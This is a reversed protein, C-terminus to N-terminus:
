TQEYIDGNFLNQKLEAVLYAVLPKFCGGNGRIWWFTNTSDNWFTAGSIAMQLLRSISHTLRRGMVAALLELIPISMSTTTPGVKTKSAIFMIGITGSGCVNREYSVVGFADKSSDVITDITMKSSRRKTRLCRQVKVQKLVSYVM